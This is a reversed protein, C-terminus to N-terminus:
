NGVFFKSKFEDVTMANSAAFQRAEQIRKEEAVIEKAHAVSSVQM